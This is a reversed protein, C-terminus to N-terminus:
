GVIRDLFRIRRGGGTGCGNQFYLGGEVQGPLGGSLQRRCVHGFAFAAAGLDQLDRQSAPARCISDGGLRIAQDSGTPKPTERINLCEASQM